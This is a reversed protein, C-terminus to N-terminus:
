TIELSLPTPKTIEERRGNYSCLARRGGGESEGAVEDEEDMEEEM